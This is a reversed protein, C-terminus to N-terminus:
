NVDSVNGELERNGERVLMRGVDSTSAHSICSKHHCLTRVSLGPSLISACFYCVNFVHGDIKIHTLHSRSVHAVIRTNKRIRVGFKGGGGGGFFERQKPTKRDPRFTNLETHTYIMNYTATIYVCKIILRVRYKYMNCTPFM